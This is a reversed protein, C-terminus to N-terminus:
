KAPEVKLDDFRIPTGAYPSGWIGARGPKPATAEEHKIMWEAPEASGNAWTKGEVIVGAASSRVQLKLHTWSGSQWDLTVSTLPQDGKYVELAKKGPSVQLRYGGVGHLSVGFTPFKRGQKTGHFRASAVADVKEATPGFLAGFTDLPSGPLELVKNGGDEKVTFQGSMIMLGQPAADTTGKSFDEVFSQEAAAAAVHISFLAAALSFCYANM